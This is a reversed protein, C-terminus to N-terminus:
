IDKKFNEVLMMFYSKLDSDQKRPTNPYGLGVTSPTSLESSASHDKNRNTLNKCKGKAM